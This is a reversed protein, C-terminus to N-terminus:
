ASACSHYHVNMSEVIITGYQRMSLAVIPKEPDANQVILYCAYRSLFYDAVKRKARSGLTVM